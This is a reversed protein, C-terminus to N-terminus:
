PLLKVDSRLEVSKIPEASAFNTLLAVFHINPEVWVKNFLMCDLCETLGIVMKVLSSM